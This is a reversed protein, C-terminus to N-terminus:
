AQYSPLPARFNQFCYNYWNYACLPPRNASLHIKSSNEEIKERIKRLTEIEDYYAISKQSAAWLIIMITIRM